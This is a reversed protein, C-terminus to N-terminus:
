PKGYVNQRQEVISHIKGHVGLTKTSLRSNRWYDRSIELLRWYDGTIELLRWYGGTVQMGSPICSLTDEHTKLM